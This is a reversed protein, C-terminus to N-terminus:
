GMVKSRKNIPGRRKNVLSVKKEISKKHDIYLDDLVTELIEYADLVDDKSLDGLLHSGANGLWKIALLRKAIDKNKIEYKQIREHLNIFKRKGKVVQFRTIKEDTLINEISKRIHNASAASDCFFLRFSLEIEKEVSEPCEFPISFIKLSPYFYEPTFLDVYILNQNADYEEIVKGHGCSSYHEKCSINTCEFTASFTYKLSTPEPNEPDFPPSSAIERVKLTDVQLQLYGMECRPCTWKIVDNKRFSSTKWLIRNIPM